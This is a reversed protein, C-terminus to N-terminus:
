LTGVADSTSLPNELSSTSQIFSHASICPASFAWNLHLKGHTYLLSNYWLRDMQVVLESRCLWVTVYLGSFCSCAATFGNESLHVLQGASKLTGAARWTPVSHM